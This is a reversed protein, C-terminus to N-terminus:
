VPDVSLSCNYWSATEIVVGMFRVARHTMTARVAAEGRAGSADHIGVNCIRARSQRLQSLPCVSFETPPALSHYFSHRAQSAALASQVHNSAQTQSKINERRKRRCHSIHRFDTPCCCIQRPARRTSNSCAVILSALGACRSLFSCRHLPFTLACFVILLSDLRRLM